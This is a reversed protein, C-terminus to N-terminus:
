EHSLNFGRNDTSINYITTQSKFPKPLQVKTLTKDKLDNKLSPNIGSDINMKNFHNINESQKAMMRKPNRKTFVESKTHNEEDSSEIESNVTEAM